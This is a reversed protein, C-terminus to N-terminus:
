WAPDTWTLNPMRPDYRRPREPVPMRDAVLVLLAVVVAPVICGIWLGLLEPTV